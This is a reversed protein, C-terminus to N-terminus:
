YLHNQKKKKYKKKNKNFIDQLILLRQINQQKNFNITLM